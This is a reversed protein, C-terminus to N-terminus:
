GVPQVHTGSTDWEVGPKFTTGTMNETKLKKVFPITKESERMDRGPTMAQAIVVGDRFSILFLDFWREQPSEARNSARDYFGKGNFVDREQLAIIKKPNSL